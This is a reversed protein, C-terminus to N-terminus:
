LVMKMGPVEGLARPLEEFVPRSSIEVTAVYTRYRGGSSGAGDRIEPAMGFRRFVAAVAERCETADSLAIMRFTWSVPFELEVEKGDKGIM